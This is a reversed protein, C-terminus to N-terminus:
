EELGIEQGFRVGCLKCCYCLLVFSLFVILIPWFSTHRGSINWKIILFAEIKMRARASKRSSSYSWHWHSPVILLEAFVHFSVTTSPVQIFFICAFLESAFKIKLTCFHIKSSFTPVLFVEFFKLFKVVKQLFSQFILYLHSFQMYNMLYM